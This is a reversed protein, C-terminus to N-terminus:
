PETATVPLQPETVSSRASAANWLGRQKEKAKAALQSPHGTSQQVQLWVQCSIKSWRGYSAYKGRQATYQSLCMSTDCTVKVLQEPRHLVQILFPLRFQNRSFLYVGDFGPSSAFWQPNFFELLGQPVSFLKIHCFSCYTARKIANMLIFGCSGKSIIWWHLHDIPEYSQNYEHFKKWNM